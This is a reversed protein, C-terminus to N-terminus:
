CAALESVESATMVHVGSVIVGRFRDHSARRQGTITLPTSTM